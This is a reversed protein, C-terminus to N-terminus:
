EWAVCESQDKFIPKNLNYDEKAKLRKLVNYKNDLTNHLFISLTSAKNSPKLKQFM